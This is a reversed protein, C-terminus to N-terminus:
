PVPFQIQAEPVPNRVAISRTKVETARDVCLVHWARFRIAEPNDSKFLSDRGHIAEYEKAAVLKKRFEETISAFETSPNRNLRKMAASSLLREVRQWDGFQEANRLLQQMESARIGERGLHSNESHDM